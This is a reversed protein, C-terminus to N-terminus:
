SSNNSSGSQYCIKLKKIIIKKEPELKTGVCPSFCKLKFGQLLLAFCLGNLCFSSFTFHTKRRRWQFIHFVFFRSFCFFLSWKMKQSEKPLQDSFAGQENITWGRSWFFLLLCHTLLAVAEPELQSGRSICRACAHGHIMMLYVSSFFVCFFVCLFFVTERRSTDDKHTAALQAFASLPPLVPIDDRRGPFRKPTPGGVTFAFRQKLLLSLVHPLRFFGSPHIM